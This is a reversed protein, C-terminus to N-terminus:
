PRRLFGLCRGRNLAIVYRRHNLYRVIVRYRTLGKCANFYLFLACRPRFIKRGVYRINRYGAFRLRRKERGVSVRPWYCRQVLQFGPRRVLPTRQARLDKKLLVKAKPAAIAATPALAAATTLAAAPALAAGAFAVAILTKRM